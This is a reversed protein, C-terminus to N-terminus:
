ELRRFFQTWSSAVLTFSNIDLVTITVAVSTVSPEEPSGVTQRISNIEETLIGAFTVHGAPVCPDGVRKIATLQGDIHQIVVVERQFTGFPCQYESEWTGTLDVPGTGTTVTITYTGTLTIM